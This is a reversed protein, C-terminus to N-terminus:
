DACCRFGHPAGMRDRPAANMQTCPMDAAPHGDYASNTIVCSDTQPTAGIVCSDLWQHTNGATDFVGKFGGECGARSKVNELGANAEGGNCSQPDYVDGYPYTRTGGASCVFFYESEITGAAGPL